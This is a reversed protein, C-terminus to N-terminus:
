PLGASNWPIRHGNNEICMTRLAPDPDKIGGQDDERVTMETIESATRSGSAGERFTHGM